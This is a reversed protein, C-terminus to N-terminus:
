RACLHALLAEFELRQLEVATSLRPHGAPLRTCEQCEDVFAFPDWKGDPMLTAKVPVDEPQSLFQAAEEALPGFAPHEGVRRFWYKANAYDPERRHMIAHIFNGDPNEIGQVIRHAAELHDHWLLAAARILDAQRTPLGIERALDDFAATLSATSQVHPRVVSGLGPPAPTHFLARVRNLM